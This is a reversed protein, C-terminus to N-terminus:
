PEVALIARASIRSVHRLRRHVIRFVTTDSLGAVRGIRRMSWGAERLAEVHARVRRPDVRSAPEAGRTVALAARRVRAYHLLDTHCRGCRCRGSLWASRGHEIRSSM